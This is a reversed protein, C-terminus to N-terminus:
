YDLVREVRTDDLNDQGNQLARTNVWLDRKNTEKLYKLDRKVDCEVRSDDLNDQSNQLARTNVWLDRKNTEKLYKYTEKSM